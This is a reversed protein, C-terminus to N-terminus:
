RNNRIYNIVLPFLSTVENSTVKGPVLFVDIIADDQNTLSVSTTDEKKDYEFNITIPKCLIKGM